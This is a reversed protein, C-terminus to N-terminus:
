QLEEVACRCKCQLYQWYKQLKDHAKNIDTEGSSLDCVMRLKRHTNNGCYEVKVIHYKM